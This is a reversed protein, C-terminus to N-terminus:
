NYFMSGVCVETIYLYITLQQKYYLSYLTVIIKIKFTHHVIKFFIVRQSTGMVFASWPSFMIRKETKYPLSTLM